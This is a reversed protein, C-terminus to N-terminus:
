GVQFDIWRVKGRQVLKKLRKQASSPRAAGNKVEIFTIGNDPDFHMYDVPQGLFITSTGVKHIDIPFNKLVPSLAETIKSLREESFRNSGQLRYSPLASWLLFRVLLAVLLIAVLLGAPTLIAVVSSIFEM